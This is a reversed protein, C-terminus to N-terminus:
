GSDAVEDRYECGNARSAEAFAQVSFVRNVFTVSRSFWKWGDLISLKDAVEYFRGSV